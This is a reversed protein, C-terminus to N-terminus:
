APSAASDAVYPQGQDEIDTAARLLRLGLTEVSLAEHGATPAPSSSWLVYDTEGTPRALQRYVTPMIPVHDGYWCLLGPRAQRTLTARLSAVMRDANRLHRLYVTLDECGNPPAATYHTAIDDPGTKELHLPGHNEMTIVFVFVPGAANALIEAVKAAVAEDGIYPGCRPADPFSRIDVFEDFGLLPCVKDRTYFGAPYPHVCITRYGRRKLVHAVSVAGSRAAKRYPNFRHVGLTPADVATLFAFESRVTNAGWAPVSLKGHSIADRKLDDFAALVEPRIGDFLLRADFFSESQVAVIHPPETDPAPPPVDAFRDPLQPARREACGYAWLCPLLGFADLDGTADYRVPPGRRSPTVLLIGVAAWVALAGLQGSLAFRDAPVAELWLGTAVAAVFGAAAALANGWGLFPIYLRPHRMADTFYEFDQFVFPEELSHFKANNVLVILLLFASTAATAFWPRGLVLCLPVFTLLWLGCHLTICSAPRRWMPRLPPQMAAEIAFSLALGVAPAFVISTM